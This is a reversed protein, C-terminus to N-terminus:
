ALVTSRTRGVTPEVRISIVLVSVAVLLQLGCLALAVETLNSGIGLLVLVELVAAGGLVGIFRSQGLALLYQVSLYACALLAMALGLWPLAGAAGTKDAGFVAALIPKAAVAYLAVMPL